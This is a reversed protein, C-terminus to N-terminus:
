SRIQAFFKQLLETSEEACVGHQLHIEHNVLVTQNAHVYKFAGYKHDEAAFVLRSIRAQYIAGSCMLCPELTTYLTTDLLRWNSLRACAKKIVILEAHQTIDAKTEKQNYGTAIIRGHQIIVAGVPVEGQTAAVRAAALAKRMWFTDETKM